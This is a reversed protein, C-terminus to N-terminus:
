PRPGYQNDKPQSVALCVILAFISIALEAIIVCLALIAIIVVLEKRIHLTNLVDSFIFLVNLIAYIVPILMTRGVDHFRRVSLTFMGFFLIVNVIKVLIDVILIDGTFTSNLQTIVISTVIYFLFGWWFQTRTARSNLVFYNTWYDKIAQIM